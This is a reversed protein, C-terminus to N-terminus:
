SQPHSAYIHKKLCNAQVYYLGCIRCEFMKGEEHVQAHMKLDEEQPFHLGCVPCEGQKVEQHGLMHMYLQQIRRYTKRCIGCRHHTVSKWTQHQRKHRTLVSAHFFGKGCQHCLHRGQKRRSVGNKNIDSHQKELITEEHTTFTTKTPTAETNGGTAIIHNESSKTQIIHSNSPGPKALDLPTCDMREKCLEPPSTHGNAAISPVQYDTRKLNLPLQSIRGNRTATANTDAIIGTDCQMSNQLSQIVCNMKSFDIAEQQEENHPVLAAESNLVPSSFMATVSPHNILAQYHGQDATIKTIKCAHKKLETLM